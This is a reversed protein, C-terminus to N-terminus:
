SRENGDDIGERAAALASAIDAPDPLASVRGDSLRYVRCTLRSGGPQEGPVEIDRGDVRVTPSGRFSQREAEADDLIERVELTGPDIGAEAMQERVIEVAREWSPCGRWWLLEVRV